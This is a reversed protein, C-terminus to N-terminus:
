SALNASKQAVMKVQSSAIAVSEEEVTFTVSNASSNGKSSQLDVSAAITLSATNNTIDPQKADPENDDDDDYRGIGIEGTKLRQLKYGNNNQINKANTKRTYRDECMRHIKGCLYFYHKKYYEFQLVLCITNIVTDILFFFGFPVAFSIGLGQAIIVCSVAFLFTSFTAVGVLITYKSMDNILRVLSKLNDMNEDSIKIGTNENSTSHDLRNDPNDEISYNVSVSQNLKNLQPQTLAGFNNVCHQIVNSLKKVYIGLLIFANVVLFTLTSSAMAAATNTAAGRDKIILVLVMNTCHSIFVLSIIITLYLKIVKSIAFMTNQFTFSLRFSFLTFVCLTGMAQMTCGIGFLLESIRDDDCAIIVFYIFYNIIGISFCFLAILATNKIVKMDKQSEKRKTKASKNRCLNNYYFISAIALSTLGLGFCFTVLAPAREAATLCM